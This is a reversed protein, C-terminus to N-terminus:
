MDPHPISYAWYQGKEAGARIEGDGIDSDDMPYSEVTGDSFAVLYTGAERPMEGFTVRNWRITVTQEM